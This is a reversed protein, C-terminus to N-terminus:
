KKLIPNYGDIVLKARTDEASKIDSFPGVEVHFLKDTGVSSFASYQKKKLADVLADGDEQKSVAAVQVYYGNVPAAAAPSGPSTDAPNTGTAANGSTTGSSDAPAPQSAASNQGSSKYFAVDPSAAGTAESASKVASPRAEAPSATTAPSSDTVALAPTVSSRGMKYGMGFFIACFAVLGFFLALMKGTGLTIETDQSAAMPREM